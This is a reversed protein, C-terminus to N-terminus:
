KKLCINRIKKLLSFITSSILSRKEEPAYKYVRIWQTIELIFLVKSDISYSALMSFFYDYDVMRNYLRLSYLFKSADLLYSSYGEPNFIPDILVHKGDNVLINDLSLDGHCFSKNKDCYDYISMLPELIGRFDIKNETINFDCHNEMRSIYTSFDGGIFPIKKFKLIIDLVQDIKIESNNDIYELCLTEGILSHVKPINFYASAIKYWKSAYLSDKHTKYVLGNRLEVSAGSWGSKLEKIDLDIFEDPTLNKDDIYYTALYKNFSLKHYKVGHKKLYSEIQARYKKDAKVFDGKCSLQGRATVLWIEWGLDYLQNIKNIVPIVPEANSFDRDKTICITDDIDCIIRKNYM